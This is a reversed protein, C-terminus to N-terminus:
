IRRSINQSMNPKKSEEDKAKINKSTQILERQVEKLKETAGQIQKNQGDGTNQSSIAQQYKQIEEELSQLPDQIKAIQENKQIIEKQLVALKDNINQQQKVEPTGRTTTTPKQTKKQSSTPKKNM